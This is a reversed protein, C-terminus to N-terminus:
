PAPKTAAKAPDPRAEIVVPAASLYRRALGQLDAPTLSRLTAIAQRARDLREPRSQAVGAYGLWFGNERRAKTFREVLPARARLLTDADVPTAVLGAAVQAIAARSTELAGPKLNAGAMLYGFGPQDSSTSSVGVPSYTAGTRERLEDLVRLKMVESLLTLALDTKLDADDTTPWYMRLAAQDAEGEHLLVTTGRAETFARERGAAHPAFAARRAPLAGFSAAVADIAAQEDVDGVIAIEIAGDSLSDDADRRFDPWDLAMVTALPPVAYRPDHPSLVSNGDRGIVAEPTADMRDYASPLARRLLAVAEPRYGPHAITAAMLDLQLPLDRPSTSASGGFDEGDVAFAPSVDRGALITRLEDASHAELGGLTMVQGLGLAPKPDARTALLQGGDVRVDVLVRDAQFDTKKLNLMVGNAFRVRRIGLDEVTSDSVVAGPTGWDTYAFAATTTAAPASLAVRAAQDYAAAIAAEGGAVPTKGTVRILPQSRDALIRRLEENVADLTLTPAFRNFLALDYAPATPVSEGDGDASALISDAIGASRRTDASKAANERATRLGALQEDLEAQTLGFRAASRVTNELIGIAPAWAGEKVQATASIAEALKFVDSRGVFAGVLPSDPATTATALRRNLAGLALGRLTARRTEDETEPTPAYPTYWTISATEPVDPHVWDDVARPRALDIRGIGAKPRGVGPVTWDSFRRRIEREVLEPDVDGVVVLTTTEPRYVGQYLARFRAAPATAIVEPTGIPLRQALTTDPAAFALSDLVNRLQFGDRARRESDIVGRERDIADPALTLNGAVERMLMLGTGLMAASNRPLDLKYTIGDFGTAANTDAGFALGERELLKVMEGEPVNTSGNFAMHELFHSLGREDEAESLSGRDVNMRVVVTDKPTDNRRIAYKVGNPLLGFRITPDIEVDTGAFGWARKVAASPPPQDPAPAPAPAMAEQAAVPVPAFPSLLLTTALLLSRVAPTM